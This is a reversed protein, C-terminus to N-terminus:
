GDAHADALAVRREPIRSNPDLTVVKKLLSNGFREGLDKELRQLAEEQHGKTGSSLPAQKGSEGGLRSLGLCVESVGEPFSAAELHRKLIGLIEPKSDLPTKLNLADPCTRGDESRFRLRLQSCVQYRGKLQPVLQDLLKDLAALLADLSDLPPEFSLTRELIDPRPRPRVLQGDVGNALRHATLGERGLQSALANEALSAVQGMCRLGLRKLWTITAQSVPLLEISLAELFRQEESNRVILPSASALSAAIGAVFKSGAVGIQSKFGTQRLVDRSVREALNAAPGFLQETGAIDLFAKGPSDAEVIPSFQDLIDLVEEFAQAYGDENVSLFVAGPCRHSAQRLTMGRYVGLAAAKESCDLVPKREHPFGGIVLVAKLLDPHRKVEWQVPLHPIFLCLVKM